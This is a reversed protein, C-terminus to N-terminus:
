LIVVFCKILWSKYLKGCYEFYNLFELESSMASKIVVADVEYFQKVRGPPASKETRLVAITM